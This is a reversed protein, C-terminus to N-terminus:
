ESEGKERIEAARARLAEANVKPDYGFGADAQIAMEDLENALTTLARAAAAREIDAILERAEDRWAEYQEPSPNLGAARLTNGCYNMYTVEIKESVSSM